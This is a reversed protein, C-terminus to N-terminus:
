LKTKPNVYRGHRATNLGYNIAKKPCRQLCGLCLECQDKQWIPKGNEIVIAKRPCISECLGCGICNDNVTFKKTKRRSEYFIKYVPYTIAFNIAKIIPAAMKPPDTERSKIRSIIKDLKTDAKTLRKEVSEDNAMRFTPAYNEPMHISFSADFRYAKKMMEEAAWQCSGYDIVSYIYHDSKIDLKSLFERVILPIGCFYVPLVFGIREEKAPIFSYKKSQVCEAINIIEDGIQAAIKEAIYKSNGTSTFYFILVIMRETDQFVHCYEQVSGVYVIYQRIFSIM